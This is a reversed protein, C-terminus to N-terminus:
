LAFASYGSTRRTQRQAAHRTKALDTVLHAAGVLLM